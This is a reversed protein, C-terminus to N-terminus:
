DEDRYWEENQIQYRLARLTKPKINSGQVRILEPLYENRCLNALWIQSNQVSVEALAQAEEPTFIPFLPVLPRMASEASRFSNADSLGKILGPLIQRPMRRALPLVLLERTIIGDPLVRSQLHSMFGFPVTGDISLPAIVVEPRSIVFGVEQPAWMSKLFNDSLLPVFIDCTRLEEIIRGRWEDSVDLDDHALFGEIGVEELVAKARAGYKRDTHSYSIFARLKPVAAGNKGTAM